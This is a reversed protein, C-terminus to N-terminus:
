YSTKKEITHVKGSDDTLTYKNTIVIDCVPREGTNGSEHVQPCDTEILGTKSKNAESVDVGWTDFLVQITKTDSITAELPSKYTSKCSSKGKNTSDSNTEVVGTNYNFNVTLTDIFSSNSLKCDSVVKTNRLLKNVNLSPLGNILFYQQATPENEDYSCNFKIDGSYDSESLLTYKVGNNAGSVTVSCKEHPLAQPVDEQKTVDTGSADPTDPKKSTRGSGCGITINAIIVLSAVVKLPTFNNM